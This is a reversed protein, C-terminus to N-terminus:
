AGVKPGFAILAYGSLGADRTEFKTIGELVGGNFEGIGQSVRIDLDSVPVIQITENDMIDLVYGPVFQRENHAMADLRSYLAEPSTESFGQHVLRAGEPLRAAWVCPPIHDIILGVKGVVSEVYEAPAESSGPPLTTATTGFAAQSLFSTVPESDGTGLRLREAAAEQKSDAGRGDSKPM